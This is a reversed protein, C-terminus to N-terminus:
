RKKKGESTNLYNARYKDDDRSSYIYGAGMAVSGFLTGVVYGVSHFGLVFSLVTAALLAFLVYLLFNGM